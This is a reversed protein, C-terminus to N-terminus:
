EIAENQSAEAGFLKAHVALPRSNPAALPAQAAAWAASLSLAVAVSLYPKLKKM